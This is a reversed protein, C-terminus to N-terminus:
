DRVNSPAERISRINNTDWDDRNLNKLSSRSDRGMSECPAVGDNIPIIPIIKEVIIKM